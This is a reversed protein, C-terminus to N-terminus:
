EEQLTYFERAAESGRLSRALRPAGSPSPKSTVALISCWSRELVAGKYLCDFLYVSATASKTGLVTYDAELPLRARRSRDLRWLHLMSSGSQERWLLEHLLCLLLDGCGLLPGCCQLGQPCAGLHTDVRWRCHDGHM